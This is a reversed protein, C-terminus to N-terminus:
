HFPFKFLILLLSTWMLEICGNGLVAFQSISTGVELLTRIQEKLFGALDEVDAQNPLPSPKTARADRLAQHAIRNVAEWSTVFSEKFKKLREEMKYDEAKIKASIM